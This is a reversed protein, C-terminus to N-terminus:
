ILNDNAGTTNEAGSIPWRKISFDSSYELNTIAKGIKVTDRLVYLLYEKVTKANAQFESKLAPTADTASRNQCPLSNGWQVGQTNVTLGKLALEEL